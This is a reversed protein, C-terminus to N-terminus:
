APKGSNVPTEPLEPPHTEWGSLIEDVRTRLEQRDRRM